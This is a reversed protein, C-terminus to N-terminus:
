NPHRQLITIRPNVAGALTEPGLWPELPTRGRASYVPEYGARGEALARLFRGREDGFVRARDSLVVYDADAAALGAAGIEPRPVHVPDLGLLELRPLYRRNTFVVVRAGAEAHASLWREAGYRADALLFLDQNLAHLGAHAYVLAVAAIGIAGWLRPAATLRSALLGGLVALLPVLPLMFRIPAFGAPVLSLAFYSAAPILVVLAFPRVRAVFPVGLLCLLLLGGGMAEALSRATVGVFPLFGPYGERFSTMRDSDPSWNGLHEVFGSWNFLLNNSLAYVLVVAAVLGWLRRDLAGKALGGGRRARDFHVALIAAAVGVYAGIVGEKTALTCGAALGFALYDWWAGRRLLSVFALMSLTFWFLVPGDLNGVHAFFVVAHSCAVALAAFLAARREGHLRMALRHTLWVTGAAMAVSLLRSLGMLVSFQRAPDSFCPEKLNPFCSADLGGSLALFGLYPSYLAFSIWWHLRPYKHTGFLYNYVVKLPKDPSIDDGNWPYANPLGWGIGILSLVVVLALIALLLRDRPLGRL